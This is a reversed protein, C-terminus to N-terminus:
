YPLHEMGMDFAGLGDPIGSMKYGNISDNATLISTMQVNPAVPILYPGQSSSPGTIQAHVSFTLVDSLAILAM